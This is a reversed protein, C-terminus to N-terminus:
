EPIVCKETLFLLSEVPCPTELLAFCCWENQLDACSEIMNRLKM